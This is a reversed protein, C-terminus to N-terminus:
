QWSPKSIIVVPWLKKETSELLWKKNIKEESATLRAVVPSFLVNM